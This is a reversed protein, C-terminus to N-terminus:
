GYGDMWGVWGVILRDLLCVDGYMWVVLLLWAWVRGFGEGFMGNRRLDLLGKRCRALVKEVFGGWECLIMWYTCSKFLILWVGRLM